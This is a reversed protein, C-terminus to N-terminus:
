RCRIGGANGGGGDSAARGERGTGAERDPWRRIRQISGLRKMPVRREVIIKARGHIKARGPAPPPIQVGVIQM